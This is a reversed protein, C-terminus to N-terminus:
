EFPFSGDIIGWYIGLTCIGFDFYDASNDEGLFMLINDKNRYSRTLLINIVDQKISNNDLYSTTILLSTLGHCMSTGMRLFNNFILKQLATIELSAFGMSDSKLKFDKTLFEKISNNLFNELNINKDIDIDIDYRYIKMLHLLMCLRGLAFDFEDI